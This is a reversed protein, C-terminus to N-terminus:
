AAIKEVLGMETGSMLRDIDVLILMRDDLAGMGILYDTDMAAGIQPAPKIQEATLTTV